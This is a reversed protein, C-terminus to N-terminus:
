SDLPEYTEAGGWNGVTIQRADSVLTNQGNEAVAVLTVVDSATASATALDDTNMTYTATNGSVVTPFPGAVTSGDVATVFVRVTYDQQELNVAGGAITWTFPVGLRTHRGLIKTLKHAGINTM